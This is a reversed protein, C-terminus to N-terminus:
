PWKLNVSVEWERLWKLAAEHTINGRQWVFLDLAAEALLRGPKEREFRAQYERRRSEVWDMVDAGQRNVWGMVLQPDGKSWGVLAQRLDLPVGPVRGWRHLHVSM